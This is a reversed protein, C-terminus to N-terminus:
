PRCEKDHSTLIRIVADVGARRRHDVAPDGRDDRHRPLARRLAHTRGRRRPRRTEPDPLQCRSQGTGRAVETSPVGFLLAYSNAADLRLGQPAAGGAHCVTCIPTFVHAQISAFDPSLPTQGGDGSGIPRGNSDLGEGDGGGCGALAAAALCLATAIDLSARM